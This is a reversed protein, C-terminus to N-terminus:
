KGVAMGEHEITLTIELPENSKASLSSWAYKSPWANKFDFQMVQTNDPAYVIISINKRAEKMKGDVVAQRWKLIPDGKFAAYKATLKGAKLPTAGQSKIIIVKGDSTSQMTERVETETEIGSVEKFSAVPAYEGEFKLWFSNAGILEQPHGGDAM